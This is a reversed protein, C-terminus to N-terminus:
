LSTLWELILEWLVFFLRGGFLIFNVSLLWAPIALLLGLRCILQDQQQMKRQETEKPATAM